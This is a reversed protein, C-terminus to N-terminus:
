EPSLAEGTRQPIRAIHDQPSAFPQSGGSSFPRKGLASAPDRSPTGFKAEQQQKHAAALEQEYRGLLELTVDDMSNNIMFAEVHRALSTPDM